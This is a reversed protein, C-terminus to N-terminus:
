EIELELKKREGEVKGIMEGEKKRIEGELVRKGEEMAKRLEEEKKMAGIWEEWKNGEYLNYGRRVLEEEVKGIGKEFERGIVVRVDYKEVLTKIGEKMLESLSKEDGDKSEGLLRKFLSSNIFLQLIVLGVIFFPSFQLVGFVIVLVPILMNFVSKSFTFRSNFVSSLSNSFSSVKEDLNKIKLASFLNALKKLPAGLNLSTMLNANTPLHLLTLKGLSNQSGVISKLDKVTKNKKEIVFKSTIKEVSKKGWEKFATSVKKSKDIHEFLSKPILMKLVVIGLILPLLWLANVWVLIPLIAMAIGLGPNAIPIRKKQTDAFLGNKAWEISYQEESTSFIDSSAIPLKTDKSSLKNFIFDIINNAEPNKFEIFDNNEPDELAKKCKELEEESIINERKLEEFINELYGRVTSGEIVLGYAERALLKKYSVKIKNNANYALFVGIIGLAATAPMPVIFLLAIHVFTFILLKLIFKAFVKKDFGNKVLDRIYSIVMIIEGSFSVVYTSMFKVATMISAILSGLPVFFYIVYFAVVLLVLAAAIITAKVKQKPTRLKGLDVGFIKSLFIGVVSKFGRWFSGSTDIYMEDMLDQVSRIEETPQSNKLNILNLCDSNLAQSFKLLKAKEYKVKLSQSTFELKEKSIYDYYIAIAKVLDITGNTSDVISKGRMYQPLNLTRNDFGPKIDLFNAINPFKSKFDEISLNYLDLDTLFLGFFDQWKENTMIDTSNDEATSLIIQKRLLLFKNMSSIKDAIKVQSLKLQNQLKQVEAENQSVDSKLTLTQLNNLDDNNRNIEKNIVSIFYLVTQLDTGTPQTQKLLNYVIAERLSFQVTQELGEFQTIEINLKGNVGSNDLKFPNSLLYVGVDKAINKLSQGSAEKSLTQFNEPLLIKIKNFEKLVVQQYVVENFLAQYSTVGKSNAIAQISASDIVNLDLMRKLVIASGVPLARELVDQLGVGKKLKEFVSEEAKIVLEKKLYDWMFASNNKEYNKSRSDIGEVVSKLFSKVDLDTNEKILYDLLDQIVIIDKYDTAYLDTIDFSNSRFKAFDPVKVSDKHVGGEYFNIEDALKQAVDDDLNVLTILIEKTIVIDPNFEHFQKIKQILVRDKVDKFINNFGDANDSSFISALGQMKLSLNRIIVRLFDFLDAISIFINEILSLNKHVWKTVSNSSKMYSQKRLEHNVFVELLNQNIINGAKDFFKAKFFDYNISVTGDKSLMSTGTGESLTESFGAIKKALEAENSDSLINMVENKDINLAKSVFEEALNLPLARVIKKFIVVNELIDPIDSQSLSEKALFSKMYFQFGIFPISGLIILLPMVFWMFSSLPAFIFAMVIAVGVALTGYFGLKVKFYDLFSKEKIQQSQAISTEVFAQGDYIYEKISGDKSISLRVQNLNNIDGSIEAKVGGTEFAKLIQNVVELTYGKQTLVTVAEIFRQEVSIESLPLTALMQFLIKSQEKALAYYAEQALKIGSDVNPTIVLYSIGKDDLLESVGQTHFGGTVVVCIKKAEKLSKIVKASSPLSVDLIDQIQGRNENLVDINNIFYENRNINVEYFEDSMKEYQELRNIKKNDVYKVWLRKFKDINNKYYIYDSSTIKSTLYDSLYREFGALFAIDKQGDDSALAISIENKLEEEEKLMELSNIKQSLEIYSLFKNLNPFTVSLDVSYERALKVLYIYLKDTHSFDATADLLTKYVSYPLIERLKVIFEKLERTSKDYNIEKGLELLTNYTKINEYKSIDIGFREAYKAMLHFYKESGKASFKYDSYIEEAKKQKSNYYLSKLYSIDDYMNTIINLIESQHNLIDGFRKLNELYPEKNELGKILDTRGSIASYYEAGTLIGTDVISDMIKENNNKIKTLWSTDVQGYAGELYVNNLGFEKDFASIINGINKQVGPHLHLDQINIVVVDSGTYNASTIKGYSYPLTFDEFIQKYQTGLRVQELLQSVAQGYVFSLLFCNILITSIIKIVTLKKFYNRLMLQTNSVLFFCQKM